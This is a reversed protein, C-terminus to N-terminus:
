VHFVAQLALGHLHLDAIRPHLGAEGQMLDPHEGLHVLARLSQEAHVLVPVLPSAWPADLYGSLCLARRKQQFEVAKQLNGAPHAKLYVQGLGPRHHRGLVQGLHHFAM